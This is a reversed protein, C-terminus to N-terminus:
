GESDIVIRITLEDGSVSATRQADIRKPRLMAGDQWSVYRLRWGDRTTVSDHTPSAVFRSGDAGDAYGQLWDRLGAVPLAWGLTQASLANIDPAVRPAQGAQTLTASQATVSITALMQGLPSILNVDTRAGSQTWAFGVTSLEEKGDKLYRVSIRGNLAIDARYAALGAGGTPGTAACSALLAGALFVAPLNLFRLRPM